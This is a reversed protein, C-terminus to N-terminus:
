NEFHIPLFCSTLRLIELLYLIIRFMHIRLYFESQLYGTKDLYLLWELGYVSIHNLHRIQTVARQDESGNDAKYKIIWNKLFYFCTLGKKNM